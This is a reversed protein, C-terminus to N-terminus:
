RKVIYPLSLSKHRVTKFLHIYM